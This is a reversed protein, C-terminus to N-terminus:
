KGGEGDARAFSHKDLERDAKSTSRLLEIEETDFLGKFLLYGEEQFERIQDQTLQSM